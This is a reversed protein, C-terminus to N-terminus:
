GREAGVLTTFVVQQQGRSQTRCSSVEGEMIGNILLPPVSIDEIFKGLQEEAEQRSLFLSCDFCAGGGDM